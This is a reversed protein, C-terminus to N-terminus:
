SKLYKIEEESLFKPQTPQTTLNYMQRNKSSILIGEMIELVHIALDLSCRAKRKNIIADIMDSLGIGRYNAIKVGDNDVKNPIGLPMSDNKITNWEEDKKQFLFIEM